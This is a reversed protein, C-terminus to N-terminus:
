YLAAGELSHWDRNFPMTRLVTKRELAEQVRNWILISGYDCAPGLWVFQELIPKISEWSRCYLAAFPQSKAGRAHLLELEILEGVFWSVMAENSTGTSILAGVFCAWTILDRCLELGPFHRWTTLMLKLQSAITEHPEVYATPFTVGLGFALLVSQVIATVQNSLRRSSQARSRPFEAITSLLRHQVSNRHVALRALDLTKDNDCYRTILSTLQRMDFLVQLVSGSLGLHILSQIGVTSEERVHGGQRFNSSVVEGLLALEYLHGLPFQPPQLHMTSSLIDTYQMLSGLGPMNLKDLGGRLKIFNVLAAGHSPVFPLRTYVDISQLDRLPPSFGEISFRSAVTASDVQPHLSLIALLVADRTARAPTSLEATLGQILLDGHKLIGRARTVTRSRINLHLSAAWLFAHILLPEEAIHAVWSNAVFPSDAPDAGPDFEPWFVKTAYHFLKQSIPEELHESVLHWTGLRYLGLSPDPQKWHGRRRADKKVVALSEVPSDRRSSGGSQFNQTAELSEEKTKRRKMRVYQNIHRNIAVRTPYDRRTGPVFLIGLSSSTSEATTSPPDTQNDM